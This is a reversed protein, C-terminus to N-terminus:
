PRQALRELAADLTADTKAHCLRVVNTVPDSEYFASVPIGAVGVTNIAWNCWQTDSMAMGSGTLDITVFWTAPCPLVAYGHDTLGTVLKDRSRQNRARM